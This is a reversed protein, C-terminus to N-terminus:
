DRNTGGRREVKGYCGSATVFTGQEPQIRVPRISPGHVGDHHVSGSTTIPEQHRWETSFGAAEALKSLRCDSARSASKNNNANWSNSRFRSCSANNRSVRSYRWCPPQKLRTTLWRQQQQATLNTPQPEREIMVNILIFLALGSLTTRVLYQKKM